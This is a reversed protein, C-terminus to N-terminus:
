VGGLIYKIAHAMADQSQGMANALKVAADTRSNDAKRLAEKLSDVEDQQYKLARNYGENFAESTVNLPTKREKVYDRSVKAWAKILQKRTTSGAIPTTKPMPQQTNFTNSKRITQGMNSIWRYNLGHLKAKEKLYNDWADEYLKKEAVSDFQYQM